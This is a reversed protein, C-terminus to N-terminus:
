DAGALRRHAVDWRWPAERGRLHVGGLWRDIGNLRVRDEHGELVARGADTLAATRELAEGDGLAVLPSAGAALADLYDAFTADGLWIPDERRQHSAAYADRVTGAGDAIAELAQQESRSLGNRTSPFQELHRILATRLFPLEPMDSMVRAAVARPDPSRFATWAAHGQALQEDTVEAREDFRAALREPTSPGLYEPGCVLTLRTEGREAAGFFDLLQALQLQDYLDHEFWLVVEDHAGFGALAEDRAQVERRLEDADGWGQGAIFDARVASLEHLPLGAPVPGDHLVDRWPLVEGGVGSARIVEAAADGNTVHLM